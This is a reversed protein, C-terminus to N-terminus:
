LFPVVSKLADIDDGRMLRNAIERLASQPLFPYLASIDHGKALFTDALRQLTENGLFPALSVVFSFDGEPDCSAVLKDLTENSLFPALSTLEKLNSGQLQKLALKDLTEESLFPALSLISSFDNEQKCDEVLKDLTESSLFPALSLISSFDAELDSNMILEDLYAGDLFPALGTIASLNLKKTEQRRFNDDVLKEIDNPPLIPAIEQIDEMAIPETEVDSSTENNIIKNITKNVDAGLLEDTSIHLVQCLQELKSIDPMSNGREWNSVAQYSVEMIDALNMQTMNQSIRAEKIKKAVNMTNFM